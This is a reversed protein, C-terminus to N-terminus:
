AVARILDADNAIYRRNFLFGGGDLAAVRAVFRGNVQLEYDTGREVHGNSWRVTVPGLPASFSWTVQPPGVVRRRSLEDTAAEAAWKARRADAWVGFVNRQCQLSKHHDYGREEPLVGGLALVGSWRQHAPWELHGDRAYDLAEGQHEFQTRDKCLRCHVLWIGPQCISTGWSWTSLRYRAAVPETSRTVTIRYAEPSM